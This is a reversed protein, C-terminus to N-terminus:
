VLRGGVLRSERSTLQSSLLMHAHLEDVVEFLGGADGESVAPSGGAVATPHATSEGPTGTVASVAVYHWAAIPAHGGGLPWDGVADTRHSRRHVRQLPAV